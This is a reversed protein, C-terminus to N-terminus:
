NCVKKIEYKNWQNHSCKKFTHQSTKLYCALQRSCTTSHGKRSTHCKPCCKSDGRGLIRLLTSQWPTPPLACEPGASAAEDGRRHHHSQVLPSFFSQNDSPPSPFCLEMTELNHNIECLSRKMWIGGKSLFLKYIFTRDTQRGMLSQTRLAPSLSCVEREETLGWGKTTEDRGM